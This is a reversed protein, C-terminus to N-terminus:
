GPRDLSQALSGPLLAFIPSRGDPKWRHLEHRFSHFFSFGNQSKPQFRLRFSSLEEFHIYGDGFGVLNGKGENKNRKKAGQWRANCGLKKRWMGCRGGKRNKKTKARNQLFESGNKLFEKKEISGRKNKQTM